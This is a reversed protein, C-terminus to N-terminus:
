SRVEYDAGKQLLSAADLDLLWLTEGRLPCVRSAPYQEDHVKAVKNVITAKEKGTAMFLIKRAHNIVPLTLTLREVNPHGGKVSLVWKKSEEVATQGPFLSATHGDEGIGLFVFDLVPFNQAKGTFTFELTKEYIAAGTHGTMHVPMPYVQSEPIPVVGIFDELAAGYNSAEDKWPVCREDVWFIHM